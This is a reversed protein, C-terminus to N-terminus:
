PREGRQGDQGGFALFAHHRAAVVQFSRDIHEDSLRCLLVADRALAADAMAGHEARLDRGTGPERRHLMRYRTSASALMRRFRRTWHSPSAGALADHFADNRENYLDVADEAPRRQLDVANLRHLAAIVGVEWDEDGVALSETLARRELGKRLRAIEAYEALSMPAVRFGRNAETTVLGDAVLFLLAERVASSSADYRGRLEDIRLRAGPRLELRIIERGLSRQLRAVLTPNGDTLGPNAVEGGPQLDRKM